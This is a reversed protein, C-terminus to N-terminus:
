GVARLRVVFCAGPDAPEYRISGGMSTVASRTIALGLGTGAAGSSFPEFLDSRGRESVGPGHDRVTVAVWPGMQHARVEVPPGGHEGANLLLNTLVQRLATVDGEVLLDDAVDIQATPEPGEAVRAADRVLPALHLSQRELSAGDQLRSLDLMRRLLQSLRLAREHAKSVLDRYDAPDEAGAVLELAGSIVALPARLEHAAEAIFRQLRLDAKKRDTIDQVLGVVWRGDQVPAPVSIVTLHGWVTSGDGRLFRKDLEYREIEGALLSALLRRDEQLDEPHSIGELGLELIEPRSRGLFETLSPTVAILRGDEDLVKMGLGAVGFLTSWWSPDAALAEQLPQLM